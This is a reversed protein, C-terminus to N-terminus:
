LNQEGEAFLHLQRKDHTQERMAKRKAREERRKVQELQDRIFDSMNVGREQCHDRLWDLLTSDIRLNFQTDSKKSRGM